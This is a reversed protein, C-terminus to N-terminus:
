VNGRLQALAQQAARLQQALSDIDRRYRELRREVGLLRRWFAGM